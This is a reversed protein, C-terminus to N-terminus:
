SQAELGVNVADGSPSGEARLVRTAGQGDNVTSHVNNEESM